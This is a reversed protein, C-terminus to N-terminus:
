IDIKDLELIEKKSLIKGLDLLVLLHEGMKTVGYLYDRNIGKVIDPAENIEDLYVRIMESVSDVEMGIINNDLDVIIIKSDRSERGIERFSLREKLNIIPIIDGRLDIVGRVFSPANPVLTYDFVPIIQKIQAVDVGFKEDGISFVIFQKEKRQITSRKKDQFNSLM